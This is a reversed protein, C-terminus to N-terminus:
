PADILVQVRSYLFDVVEQVGMATTDVVLADAAPRLPAVARQEDREDREQQEALVSEFSVDVGRALLEAHRRRARAEPGATLFFKVPADPFVVTGMDRGEAVTPGPLALVRQIPVLAERVVSLASLRSAWSSVEPTRIVDTVDCGMAIWRGETFELMFRRALDAVAQPSEAVGADLATRAFARYMAGTDLKRGGLKEALAGAVTSKGSGAPGDITVILNELQM